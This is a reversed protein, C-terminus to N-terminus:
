ESTQIRHWATMRRRLKNLARAIIQRVRERTIRYEGAIERYTMGGFFRMSVIARERDTLVARMARRVARTEDMLQAETPPDPAGADVHAMVDGDVGVIAEINISRGDVRGLDVLARPLRMAVTRRYWTAFSAGRGERYSGAAIMLLDGLISRIEAPEVGPWRGSFYGALQEVIYYHEAVLRKKSESLRPGTLQGPMRAM